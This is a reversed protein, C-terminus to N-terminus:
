LVGESRLFPLYLKWALCKRSLKRRQAPALSARQRGSTETLDASHYCLLYLVVLVCLLSQNIRFPCHHTIIIILINPRSSSTHFPMALMPFLLSVYWLENFHLFLICQLMYLSHTARTILVCQTSILHLQFPLLIKSTRLFFFKPPGQFDHSLSM